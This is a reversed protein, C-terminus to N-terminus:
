VQEKTRDKRVIVILSLGDIFHGEGGGGGSRTTSPKNNINNKNTGKNADFNVVGQREQSRFIPYFLSLKKDSVQAEEGARKSKEFNGTGQALQDWM